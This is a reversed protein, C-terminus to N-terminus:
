EGNNVFEGGATAQDGAFHDGGHSGGGFPFLAATDSQGIKPESRQYGKCVKARPGMIHVCAAILSASVASLQTRHHGRGGGERVVVHLRGTSSPMMDATGYLMRRLSSQTTAPRQRPARLACKGPMGEGMTSFIYAELGCICPVPWEFSRREPLGV